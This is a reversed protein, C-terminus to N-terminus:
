DAPPSVGRRPPRTGFGLHALRSRSGAGRPQLAIRARSQGWGCPGSQEGARALGRQHQHRRRHDAFGRVAKHPGDGARPARGRSGHAFRASPWHCRPSTATLLLPSLRARCRVGSDDLPATMEAASLDLDADSVAALYAAVAAAAVLSLFGPGVLTAAALVIVGVYAALLPPTARVENAAVLGALIGTAWIVILADGVWTRLFRRWPLLTLLALLVAMAILPFRVENLDLKEQRWALVGFTGLLFWSLVLGIRVVLYRHVRIVSQDAYHAASEAETM